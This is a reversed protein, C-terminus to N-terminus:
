QNTIPLETSGELSNEDESFANRVLMSAARLEHTETPSTRKRLKLISRCAIINPIVFTFTYAMTSINKRAGLYLVSSVIDLALMTGFIALGQKLFVQGLPGQTSRIRICHGAVVIAATADMFTGFLMTLGIQRTKELGKGRVDRFCGTKGMLSFLPADLITPTAYAQAQIGVFSAFIAAFLCLVYKNKGTFAWARLLLICQPAMQLPIISAQHYLYIKHCTQFDHDLFWSWLFFPWVILPYYRCFLYFFKILNWRSRYILRYEESILTVFDWLILTYCCIM